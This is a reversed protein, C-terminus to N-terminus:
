LILDGAPMVNSGAAYPTGSGDTATNWGAFSDTGSTLAGQGAITIAQGAYYAGADIPAAGTAGNANYTITHTPLATWQAYLTVNADTTYSAGEAYFRGSGDGATNWRDFTYGALALGGSNTQLTLDIGATKTQDGPVTGSDAGNANYTVTYTTGGPGWVAYLTVDHSPMTMVDGPAYFIGGGSERTNWGLFVDPLNTITGPGPLVVGDGVLVLTFDQDYPADAVGVGGNGHFRLVYSLPPDMIPNLCAGVLLTVAILSVLLSPRLGSRRM